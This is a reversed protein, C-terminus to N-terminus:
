EKIPTIRIYASRPSTTVKKKTLFTEYLKPYEAKFKEIDFEDVEKTEGDTGKCYTIKHGNETKWWDFGYEEFTKVLVAKRHKLEKELEKIQDDLDGTQNGYEKLIEEENPLAVIENKRQFSVVTKREEM